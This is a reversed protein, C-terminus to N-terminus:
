HKDNRRVSNWLNYEDAFTIKFKEILENSIIPKETRDNVNSYELNINFGLRDQLFNIALPLQEYQFIHDIPPDGEEPLLFFTQRNNEFSEIFNEFPVNKAKYDDWDQHDDQLMRWWSITWDLPERILSFTEFSGIYSRFNKNYEKCDTHKVGFFAKELEVHNDFGNYFFSPDEWIAKQKASAFDYGLRSNACLNNEQLFDELSTTATKTNELIVLKQKVFIIM